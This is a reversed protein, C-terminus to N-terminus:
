RLKAVKQLTYIVEPIGIKVDANVDAVLSIAASPQQGSVIQLALITDVLTVDGSLDIDGLMGSGICQEGRVARVYKGISKSAYHAYGNGFYVRWAYHTTGAYTTSSWYASAQTTAAFIPDIAPYRSYDVLSRLENRNPLRWDAHGALSLGESAALAEQWTYTDPGEGNKTDM